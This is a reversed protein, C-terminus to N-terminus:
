WFIPMTPTPSMPVTDWFRIVFSRRRYLGVLRCYRGTERETVKLNNIIYDEIAVITETTSEINTSEPLNVDITIMNRDSDPFFVFALLNFGFLALFFLGLIGLLVYRKRLLAFVILDQYKTKLANIIRDLLSVKDTNQQKAKLFFVCFLTIISLAILWSSLLAISIVVFLPGMIDGM